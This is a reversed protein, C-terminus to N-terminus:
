KADLLQRITKALAHYCMDVGAKGTVINLVYDYCSCHKRVVEYEDQRGEVFWRGEEKRVKNKKILEIAREGRSGYTEKIDDELDADLESESIIKEFLKSRKDEFKENIM